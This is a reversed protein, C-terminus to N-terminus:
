MLAYPDDSLTFRFLAGQEDPWRGVLTATFAFATHGVDGFMQLTTGVPPKTSVKMHAVVENHQLV